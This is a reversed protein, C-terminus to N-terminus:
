KTSFTEKFVAESIGGSEFLRGLGIQGDFAM